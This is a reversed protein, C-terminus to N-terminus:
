RFEHDDDAEHVEQNDHIRDIMSKVQNIDKPDLDLAQTFYQMALDLKGLKKYIKGINIHIPAEKPVMRNLQLLIELAEEERQMSQLVIAKQYENLSNTPDIESAREFHQLAEALQNQHHQNIGLYTHLMANQSNISLAKRFNYAAAVYNEQKHFINGLGWWANYQRDDSNLAQQYCKKAEEFAENEVHEHGSLTHAYSFSSDLQIARDFSKLAAEHEKQLSYCNGLICWSEPALISRELAYNSIFCLDTTKKQHWLCTSYYELGELRNPDVQLMQQYTKQCESWKCM